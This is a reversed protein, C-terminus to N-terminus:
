IAMSRPQWNVEYLQSVFYFDDEYANSDRLDNMGHKRAYSADHKMLLATNHLLIFIILYTTLWSKAKNETILKHLGELATRRSRFQIEHILSSDLQAGMVPPIPIKGCSPNTEDFINPPMGLTEPGVIEFSRTTLRVAMWLELTDSLVKREEVSLPSPLRSLRLADSYTWWILKGKHEDLVRHCCKTLGKKIYAKYQPVITDTDVIAYAPIDVSRVEGTPTMWSRRLSDGAKPIFERVRFEVFDDTYGETLRIVRVESSAWGGIDNLVSNEKWRLTWEHGKVQCPKSLEVDGIKLRLCPLRWTRGLSKKCGMCEGHYDGEQANCSRKIKLLVVGPRRHGPVQNHSKRKAEM